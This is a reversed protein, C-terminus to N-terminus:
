HHTFLLNVVAIAVFIVYISNALLHDSALVPPRFPSSPPTNLRTLTDIYLIGDRTEGTIQIRQGPKLWFGLQAAQRYTLTATNSQSGACATPHHDLVLTILRRIPARDIARITATPTPM